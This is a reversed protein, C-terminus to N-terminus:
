SRTVIGKVAALRMLWEHQTRHKDRVSLSSQHYRAAVWFGLKATHMCARFWVQGLVNEMAEQTYVGTAQNKTMLTTLWVEAQNLLPESMALRGLALQRHFQLESASTNIGLPALQTQIVRVAQEDMTSWDSGTLSQGHTRYRLLVEPLNAGQVHQLMRTWLEFDETPFYDGNFRLHHQEISDRRLMVTPHAFPTDFLMFARIEDHHSPRKLINTCPGGFYQIWSGCLGIVPNQELFRAQIELRNPLSIDDADM